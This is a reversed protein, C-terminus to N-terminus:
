SLVSLPSVEVHGRVKGVKAAEGVDRQEDQEAERIALLVAIGHDLVNPAEAPRRQLRPRQVAREHPQLLFAPNLRKGGLVAAMGITQRGSARRRQALLKGGEPANDGSADLTQRQALPLLAASHVYVILKGRRATRRM